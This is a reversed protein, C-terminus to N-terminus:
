PGGAPFVLELIEGVRRAIVAVGEAVPDTRPVTSHVSLVGCVGGRADVIPISRVSRFGAGRAIQLHPRFALDKEVDSILVDNGIGAARGCASSDFAKVVEFHALFDAGFGKQVLIRLTGTEPELVQINGKAAGDSEIAAELLRHLEAIHGDGLGM